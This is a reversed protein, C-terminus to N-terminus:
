NPRNPPQPQPQPQPAPTTAAPMSPTTLEIPRQEAQWALFSGQLLYLREFGAKGLVDAALESRRGSRCYLVVDKDKTGSLEALRQPLVDHSVNIAGPIHGALYEAETRVDLVVINTDRARQRELLEDPSIPKVSSAQALTPAAPKTQEVVPVKGPLATQNAAAAAPQSATASVAMVPAALAAAALFCAGLVATTRGTATPITARM